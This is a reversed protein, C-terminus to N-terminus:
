GSHGPGWGEGEGLTGQDGGGEGEGLTGQDGGGGGGSYMLGGGEGLTGQDGGRGRM